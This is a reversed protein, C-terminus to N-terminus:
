EGALVRKWVVPDVAVEEGLAGEYDDVGPAEVVVGDAEGVRVGEVRVVVGPACGEGRFEGGAGVVSLAVVVAVAAASADAGADV